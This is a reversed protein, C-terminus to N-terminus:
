DAELPLFQGGFNKKLEAGTTRCVGSLAHEVLRMAGHAHADELDRNEDEVNFRILIRPQGRWLEIDWAEVTFFERLTNVATSMVEPPRHPPIMDGVGIHIRYSPM